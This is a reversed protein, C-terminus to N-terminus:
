HRQEVLNHHLDWKYLTGDSQCYGVLQDDENFQVSLPQTIMDDNRMVLQGNLAQFLALREDNFVVALLYGDNSFSLTSVDGDIDLLNVRSTPSSLDFISITGDERGIAFLNSKDSVAVAEVPPGSHIRLPQTGFKDTMEALYVGGARTGIALWHGSIGSGLSTIPSASANEHIMAGSKDALSWYWLAGDAHGTALWERSLCMSELKACPSLDFECDFGENPDGVLATRSEDAIALRGDPTGALLTVAQDCPKEESFLPFLGSRSRERAARKAFSNAEVSAAVSSAEGLDSVQSPTRGRLIAAKPGTTDWEDSRFFESERSQSVAKQDISEGSAESEVTAHLDRADGTDDVGGLPLESSRSSKSSSRGSWEDKLEDLTEIVEALTQPRDGPNKALMRAVLEELEDPFNRQPAVESLRPPKSSVHAKLVRYVNDDSFPPRGTLMFFLMGGLAYIDARRDLDGGVAQEPSAYLPTGLFGQTVHADGERWVIGFDLVHVFDDGAPLREVMINEPKLDRHIMGVEHAEHVGNAIQRLIRCAREAPLGGLHEVMAELTHGEILDMLLAVSRDDLSLVDYFSVIHPNRLRGMADIERNLRAQIHELDVQQPGGGDLSIIKVAFRRSIDLADARYVAGSSGRGIRRTLLYRDDLVRGLWRETSDALAPWGDEPRETECEPCIDDEPYLVM